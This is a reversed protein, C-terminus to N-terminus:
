QRGAMQIAARVADDMLDFPEIQLRSRVLEIAQAEGTGHISFAVPVTPRLTEWAALVGEVIVDTRAFAGCLNVLLSRVRPNALVISLAPEAKRYADGGIEMFNAPRGGYYNVADMTAMTLGAGNALVGVNGDLEIYVLGEIRARRELPTGTAVPPPLAPQRSVASDDVILKCDLAVLTDGCVALPNIELLEADLTRYLSYLATLTSALAGAPSPAVALRGVLHAAAEADLGRRIDVHERLVQGPAAAHLEEIHIGGAASLLVVPTKALPDHTIAVYLERDITCKEEVLVCEVALGELGGEILRAAHRAAEDPSDAPVVGGAKGRRGAKVQAKVVVAGGLQQALAGAEIASRAVGGRPVRLRAERLLNKGLHEELFM